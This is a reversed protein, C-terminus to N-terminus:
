NLDIKMMLQISKFIKLLFTLNQARGVQCYCGSRTRAGRAMHCTARRFNPQWRTARQLFCCQAVDPDGFVHHFFTFGVCGTVVECARLRFVHCATAHLLM